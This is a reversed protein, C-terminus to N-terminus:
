QINLEFSAIEFVPNLGKKYEYIYRELKKEFNRNLKNGQMNEPLMTGHQALQEIETAIREVKLRGNYIQRLQEKLKCIKVKATTNFLFQVETTHKVTLIVM